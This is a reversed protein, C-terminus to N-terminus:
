ETKELESKRFKQRGRGSGVGSDVVVDCDWIGGGGGGGGNGKEGFGRNMSGPDAVAGLPQRPPTSSGFDYRFGGAGRNEFGDGAAAAAGATESGVAGKAPPSVTPIGRARFRSLAEINQPPTIPGGTGGLEPHFSDDSLSDDSMSESGCDSHNDAPGGSQDQEADSETGDDGNDM